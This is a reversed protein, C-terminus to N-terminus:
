FTMHFIGTVISRGIGVPFDTRISLFPFFALHRQFHHQRIFVPIIDAQLLCTSKGSHILRIFGRKGLEYLIYFGTKGLFCLQHQVLSPGICGSGIVTSKFVVVAILQRHIVCNYICHFFCTLCILNLHNDRRASGYLIGTGRENAIMHVPVSMMQIHFDSTISSGASPEFTDEFAIYDSIRIGRLAQILSSFSNGLFSSM